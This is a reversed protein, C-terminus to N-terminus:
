GLHRRIEELLADWSAAQQDVTNGATDQMIGEQAISILCVAYAMRSLRAMGAPMVM